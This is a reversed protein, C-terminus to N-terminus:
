ARKGMAEFLTSFHKLMENCLNNQNRGNKLACEEMDNIAKKLYNITDQRTKIQTISISRPMNVIATDCCASGKFFELLDALTRMMIYIDALKKETKKIKEIIEKVDNMSKDDIPLGVKQMDSYVSQFLGYLLDSDMDKTDWRKELTEQQIRAANSLAGGALNLSRFPLVQFQGRLTNTYKDMMTLGDLMPPLLVRNQVFRNVSEAAFLKGMSSKPNPRRFLQKKMLIDEPHIQDPQRNQPNVDRIHENMIAPHSNVFSVVGALYSLLQHNDVINKKLNADSKNVVRELWSDISEVVFTGNENSCEIGFLKLIKRAVRADMNKLEIQAQEFMNHHKMEELCVALGDKDGNQLCKSIIHTCKDNDGHSNLYTGACNNKNLPVNNVFVKQGDAIKYLDGKEDRGFMEHSTVDQLIEYGDFASPQSSPPVSTALPTNLCSNTENVKNYVIQLDDIDFDSDYLNKAEDYSAPFDCGNVRGHLYLENYIEHLSNENAPISKIVGNSATYWITQVSIPLKPLTSVFLGESLGKNKMLNLRVARNGFAPSYNGYPMLDVDSENSKRPNGLPTGFVHLHKGYFDRARPHLNDWNVFVRQMVLNSNDNINPSSSPRTLRAVPNLYKKVVDLTIDTLCREYMNRENQEIFNIIQNFKTTLLGNRTDNDTILFIGHVNSFMPSKVVSFILNLTCQVFQSAIEAGIENFIQNEDTYPINKPNQVQNSNEFIKKSIQKIADYAPTNKYFVDKDYVSLLNTKPQATVGTDGFLADVIEQFAIVSGTKASKVNYNGLDKGNTPLMFSPDVVKGLMFGTAVIYSFFSSNENLGLDKLTVRFNPDSDEIIANDLNKNPGAFRQQQPLVQDLKRNLAIKVSDSFAKQFKVMGSGAMSSRDIERHFLATKAIFDTYQYHVDDGNPSFKNSPVYHKALAVWQAPSTMFEDATIGREYNSSAYNGMFFHSARKDFGFFPAISEQLSLQTSM